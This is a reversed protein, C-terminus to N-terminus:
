VAITGRGRQSRATRCSSIESVLLRRSCLQPTTQKPVQLRSCGCRARVSVWEFVLLSAIYHKEVVAALRPANRLLSGRCSSAGPSETVRKSDYPRRHLEKGFVLQRSQSPKTSIEFRGVNWVKQVAMQTVATLLRKWNIWIKNTKKTCSESGDSM